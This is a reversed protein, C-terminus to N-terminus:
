SLLSIEYGATRLVTKSVDWGSLGLSKEFASWELDLKAMAVIEAEHVSQEPKGLEQDLLLAHFYAKAEDQPAADKLISVVVCMGRRTCPGVSILYKRESSSHILEELEPLSKRSRRSFENFSVGFYIPFPAVNRPRKSVFFLPEVRAIEEPSSLPVRSGSYNINGGESKEYEYSRHYSESEKPEKKNRWRFFEVAVLNMRATNLSDFAVLRMCQMNAFVHLVTLISYLVWLNRERVSSLSRAFFAAFLLGLSGTVTNQAGFKANIDAIDSGTAWHLNIAGGCAGAAVGCIAKCMNGIAINSHIM